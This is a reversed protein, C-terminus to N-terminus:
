ASVQLWKQQTLLSMLAETPKDGENQVIRCDIDEEDNSVTLSIEGTTLIEAELRCKSGIMSVYYEHLDQPLDVYLMRKNGNPRVFQTVRAQFM